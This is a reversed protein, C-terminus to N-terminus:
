IDGNIEQYDAYKDIKLKSHRKLLISQYFFLYLFLYIKVEMSIRDTGSLFHCCYILFQELVASESGSDDIFM